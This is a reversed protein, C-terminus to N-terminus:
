QTINYLKNYIHPNGLIIKVQQSMMQKQEIRRENDKRMSLIEDARKKTQQIKRWARDEEKKLLAIRNQNYYSFCSFFPVRLVSIITTKKKKKSVELLRADQDVHKQKHSANLLRGSFETRDSPLPSVLNPM